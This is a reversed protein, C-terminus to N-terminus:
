LNLHTNNGRGCSPNLLCTTLSLGSKQPGRTTINNYENTEKYPCNLTLKMLCPKLGSM